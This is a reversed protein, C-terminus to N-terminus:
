FISENHAQRSNALKAPNKGVKKELHEIGNEQRRNMHFNNQTVGLFNLCVLSCRQNNGYCFFRVVVVVAAAPFSEFEHGFFLIFYSSVSRSLASQLTHIFILAQM